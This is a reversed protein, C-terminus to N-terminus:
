PRRREDDVEASRPECQRVADLHWGIGRMQWFSEAEERQDQQALGDDGDHVAHLALFVPRNHRRRRRERSHREQKEDPPPVEVDGGRCRFPEDAIMTVREPKVDPTVRVKRKVQAQDDSTDAHLTDDCGSGAPREATM